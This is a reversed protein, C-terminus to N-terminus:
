SGGGDLVRKVLSKFRADDRVRDFYPFVDLFAMFNSREAFARELWEFRYKGEEPEMFYWAFEGMHIFEFGFKKINAIDRPWQENPWAEPYYYVGVTMMDSPKFWQGAAPNQASTLAPLTALLVLRAVLQQM